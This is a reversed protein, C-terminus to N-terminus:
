SEVGFLRTLAAPGLKAFVYSREEDTLREALVALTLGSHAEVAGHCGTTGDGCLGVLNAAVDDGGRSRPVLHHLSHARGGCCRCSPWLKLARLERWEVMSVSLRGARRPRNPRLQAAKTLPLARDLAM